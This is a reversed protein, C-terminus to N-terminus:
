GQQGAWFSNGIKGIIDYSYPEGAYLRMIKTVLYKQWFNVVLCYLFNTRNGGDDYLTTIIRHARNYARIIQM